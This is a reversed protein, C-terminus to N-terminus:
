RFRKDIRTCNTNRSGYNETLAHCNPCLLQLNEEKNNLCNGDIHHIQLPVLGTFYNIKNWGCEQCSNNYKEFLYKRIYNSVDDSGKCGSELGSKWNKIYEKYKFQAQCKNNCYKNGRPIEKGCNLCHSLPLSSGTNRKVGINNYSTACSHNCFDNVRKEYPIIKGCYKCAKPNKDYSEKSYRTKFHAISLNNSKIFDRIKNRNYTNDTCLLQKCVQNLNESNSIALKIEENTCEKFKKM